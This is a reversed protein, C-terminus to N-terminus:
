GSAPRGSDVLRLRAGMAFSEVCCQSLADGGLGIDGTELDIDGAEVPFDLECYAVQRDAHPGNGHGQKRREGRDLEKAQALLKRAGVFMEVLDAPAQVLHNTQAEIRKRAQQRGCYRKGAATREAHAIRKGGDAIQKRCLMTELETLSNDTWEAQRPAPPHSARGRTEEM